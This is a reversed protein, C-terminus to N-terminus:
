SIAYNGNNKYRLYFYPENYFILLLTILPPDM